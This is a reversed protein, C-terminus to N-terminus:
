FFMLVCVNVVCEMRTNLRKKLTVFAFLDDRLWLFACCANRIEGLFFALKSLYNYRDQWDENIVCLAHPLQTIIFVNCWKDCLLIIPKKILKYAMIDPIQLRSGIINTIKHAM